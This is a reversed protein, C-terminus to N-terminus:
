ADVLVSVTVAVRLATDDIGNPMLWLLYGAHSEAAVAALAPAHDRRRALRPQNYLNHSPPRAAAGESWRGISSPM